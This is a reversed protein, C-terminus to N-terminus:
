LKNKMIFSAIAEDMTKPANYSDGYLSKKKHEKIVNASYRKYAILAFFVIILSVLVAGMTILFKFVVTKFPLVNSGAVPQAICLGTDALIILLCLITKLANKKFNNNKMM